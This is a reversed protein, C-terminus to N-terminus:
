HCGSCSSCEGGCDHSHEEPQCTYPDEGNVCLGLIQMIDNMLADIDARAEEYVKMKDNAMFRAYLKEFNENYGKLKEEDADEKAAEQQFNLQILQIEGILDMLEKDNENTERAQKFKLYREDQQIAAGLDRTMKIIDM